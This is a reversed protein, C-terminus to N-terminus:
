PFRSNSCDVELDNPIMQLSNASRVFRGRPHEDGSCSRGTAHPMAVAAADKLILAYMHYHPVTFTPPPDNIVRASAGARLRLVAGNTSRIVVPEGNSPVSYSVSRAVCQTTSTRTSRFVAEEIADNGNASLTGGRLDIYAHAGEFITGEEVEDRLASGNSIDILSPVYRAFSADPMTPGSGGDFMLHLDNIAFVRESADASQEETLGRVELVDAARVVIRADHMPANVLVARQVHGSTLVHAILGVFIVTFSEM